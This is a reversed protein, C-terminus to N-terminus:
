KFAIYKSEAKVIKNFFEKMAPYEAPTVNDRQLTAKRIVTLSGPKTLIYQLSYKSGKFTFTESKPVDVFQTGAPAQVTVRTEYEDADEYRWYEVPFKRQDLTFNDVSAVIDSFPIKIMQMNGVEVVENDVTCVYRYGASDALGDLHFFTVSDVKVANKYSGSVAKQMTEKQKEPSLSEYDDRMSSVFAGSKTVEVKLRMNNGKIAVNVVRRVKERPKFPSEVTELKANAADVNAAPIVLCPAHNVSNPLCAFPLNNDTLELFCVQGNLWTKVICHNFEVSPLVMDKMGNDRTEVLVLNAKLGALRALAVFLSSLDKCDGLRTNITVSAKQPVYPGQRFPVSSYHINGTIYRYIRMAKEQDGLKDAGKPFLSAYVQKVEFEEDTKSSALDSYWTAIDSWTSLTSVHLVPGVDMLPPMFSEDKFIEPEKMEWTYLKFDDYDKQAPQLTVNDMKYDFKVKNAILLCYRSLLEPVFANFSFRDWYHRAMRGQAYHQIKYKMVVADGVELGTFVIQNENQEAPVVSGNKKVVEVKEIKLEQNNSNYGISTEKWRDIGKQTLIKAVTTTYEETAGEPYVVAFKEDLVYFYDYSDFKRENAKRIAAYVDEEPFAKWVYPKKQIDRLKERASYRTADYYLAKQFAAIADAEKHQEQLEQGLNEWYTAVYPALALAQRGYDAAKDYAQQDYYYSSIDTYLDPDYPFDNKTAQLLQLAKDKMGQKSYVGSLQKVINYSFNDKLYNELIKIGGKADKYGNVKLSYMMDAMDANNPYKAYASNIAKVLEETKNQKSYLTIRTNWVEEDEGYLQVGRDLEKFAEDYKEENILRQTNMRIALICDPDKEKMREVEELLVTRNGEKILVTMLELRLLSNDPYKALADDIVKRAEATKKSRLYTQCLLIYNVMNGPEQKIKQEFFAEAFHHVPEPAPTTSTEKQYPQVQSSFTLGGIAELNDDTFRVIFNPTGVSAYSLQILLRNYGKKLQVPEKYFDLETVLEKSAALVPRDNVWIRIAGGAGANLLVKRDDPSYVFTQAYVTASSRQFHPYPFTYGERNMVAPTFWHITANSVSTFDANAEPHQLPGFEKYYGSGSLNDFPGVLQWAPTVAGMKSWEKQARSFDNSYQYHLAKFYHAAAKISGNSNPDSIIKDLLQMQHGNADKKGYEGLAAENFWMAFLYPNPDKLRAYLRPIFDKIESEKDEFTHLYVYTAFADVATRPDDMAKLLLAEAKKRDNHNLAQWADDYDNAFVSFSVVNFLLFLLSYRHRM